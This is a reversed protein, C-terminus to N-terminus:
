KQAFEINNRRVAFAYAGYLLMLYLLGSTGVCVFVSLLANRIVGRAYILFYIPLFSVIGFVAFAFTYKFVPIKNGCMGLALLSISLSVFYSFVTGIPAGMIGFKSILFATVLTKAFAGLLLSLVTIRVKGQAELYTNVATLLSLLLVGFSLASLMQGGLAASTVSFLIDLIDFSYFYFALASPISIANVICLIGRSLSDFGDKDNKCYVHSLKPLYALTIPTILSIVLNLMPVALTTYNGYAASAESESFGLTVLHKMMLILDLVATINLVASGISIPLATKVLTKRLHKKEVISNQKLNNDKNNFHVRTLMYVFTIISGITIGVIAMASIMPLSLGIRVAVYALFLGCLLKILAELLQSVAIISLREESNLYGRIVGSLTVFLVAPSVAIISYYAKDNGIIKVIFPAIFLSFLTAITGVKFFLKLAYKLIYYSSIDSNRSDYEAIALSMAKPVGATCLIYIFGYIAYASNFYGMGEDGLIYSLPIKYMVGLIKTIVVAITVYLTGKLFNNIELQRKFM